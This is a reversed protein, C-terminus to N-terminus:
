AEGSGGQDGDAYDGVRLTFTTGVGVESTVELRGGLLEISKRAISLGLGTGERQGRDDGVLAVWLRFRPCHPM